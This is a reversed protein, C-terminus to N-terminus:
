KKDLRFAAALFDGKFNDSMDLGHNM